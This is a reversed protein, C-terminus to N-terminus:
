SDFSFYYYYLIYDFILKLIKSVFPVIQRQLNPKFDVCQCTQVDCSGGLGRCEYHCAALEFATCAGEGQIHPTPVYMNNHNKIQSKCSCQASILSDRLPPPPSPGFVPSKSNWVEHYQYEEFNQRLKYNVSTLTSKYIQLFKNCGLESSSNIRFQNPHVICQQKYIKMKLM